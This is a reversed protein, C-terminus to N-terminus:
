VCNSSFCSAEVRVLGAGVRGVTAGRWGGVLKAEGLEVSGAVRQHPQVFTLLKEAGVVRRRQEFHPCRGEVEVAGGALPIVAPLVVKTARWGPLIERGADITAKARGVACIRETFERMEAARARDVFVLLEEKVEQRPALVYRLLMLDGQERRPEQQGEADVDLEL